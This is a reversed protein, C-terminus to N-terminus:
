RRARVSGRDKADCYISYEHMLQRAAQLSRLGNPLHLMAGISYGVTALRGCLEVRHDESIHQEIDHAHLVACRQWLHSAGSTHATALSALTEMRSSVLASLERTRTAAADDAAGGTLVPQAGHSRASM